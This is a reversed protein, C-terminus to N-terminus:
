GPDVNLCFNGRIQLAKQLLSLAHLQIIELIKFPQGIIFLM